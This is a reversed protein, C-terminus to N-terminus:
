RSDLAIAVTGGHSDEEHGAERERESVGGSGGADGALLAPRRPRRRAQLRRAHPRLLRAGERDLARIAVAPAEAAIRGPGASLAKGQQGARGLLTRLQDDLVGVSDARQALERAQQGIVELGLLPDMDLVDALERGAAALRVTEGEANGVLRAAPDRHHLRTL